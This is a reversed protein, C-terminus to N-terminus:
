EKWSNQKANQYSFHGFFFKKEIHGNKTACNKLKLFCIQMIHWFNFTTRNENEIACFFWASSYMVFIYLMNPNEERMQYLIPWINGFLGFIYWGLVCQMSHQHLLTAATVWVEERACDHVCSSGWRQLKEDCVLHGCGAEHAELRDLIFGLEM